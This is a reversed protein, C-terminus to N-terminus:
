HPEVRFPILTGLPYTGNGVYQGSSTSLAVTLRNANLDITVAGSTLQVLATSGDKESM